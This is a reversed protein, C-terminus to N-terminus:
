TQVRAAELELQPNDFIGTRVRNKKQYTLSGRLRKAEESQWRLAALKAAM